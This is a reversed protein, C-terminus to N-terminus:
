IVPPTVSDDVSACIRRGDPSLLTMSTLWPLSAVLAKLEAECAAPSTGAAAPERAFQRLVFDVDAFLHEERETSQMAREFLQSRVAEETRSRDGLATVLQKTGALIAVLALLLFLSTR